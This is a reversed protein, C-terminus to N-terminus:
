RETGCAMLFDKELKKIEPIVDSPGAVGVLDKSAWAFVM